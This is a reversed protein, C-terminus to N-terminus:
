KILLSIKVIVLSGSTQNTTLSLQSTLATMFIKNIRYILTVSEIIMDIDIKIM